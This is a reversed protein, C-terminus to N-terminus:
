LKDSLVVKNYAQILTDIFEKSDNYFLEISNENGDELIKYYDIDILLSSDPYKDYLKNLESQESSKGQDFHYDVNMPVHRRAQEKTLPGTIIRYKDDGHTGEIVTHLDDVEIGISNLTEKNMFKLEFIKVLEEYTMNSIPIICWIRRGLRLINKASSLKEINKSILEVNSEEEKESFKDTDYTASKFTLHLSHRKDYNKLILSLRDTTWDPYLDNLDDQNYLNNYFDLVPKYDVRFIGRKIEPKSAM